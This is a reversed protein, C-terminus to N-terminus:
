KSKRWRNRRHFGRKMRFPRRTTAKKIKDDKNVKDLHDNIKKSLIKVDTKLGKIEKNLGTELREIHTKLDNVQVYLCWFGFPVLLLYLVFLVVSLFKFLKKIWGKLKNLKDEDLWKFFILILINILANILNNVMDSM